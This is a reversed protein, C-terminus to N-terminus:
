NRAVYISVDDPVGRLRAEAAAVTPWVDGIRERVAGSVFVQDDSAAECLRAAINVDVGVFDQGIRQPQGVHLGARLAPRYGDVQSRPVEAIAAFAAELALQCDPFIAMAGDGLRKVLVGDRTEVADTILADVRRLLDAVKEDDANLAWESFGALDTFLISQEPAASVGRLDEGLWDAVQLGALALEALLSLRSRLTWAGRGLVHAPTTGSTSLPDGFDSDGPIVERAAQVAAV